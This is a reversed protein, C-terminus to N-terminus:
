VEIEESDSIKEKIVDDVDDEHEDDDVDGIFQVDAVESAESSGTPADWLLYGEAATWVRVYRGRGSVSALLRGQQEIAEVSETEGLNHRWLLEGSRTDLAGIFNAAQM